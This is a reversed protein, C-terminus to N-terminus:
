RNDIVDDVTESWHSPVFISEDEQKAIGSERRVITIDHTVIM